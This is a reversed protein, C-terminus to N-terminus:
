KSKIEDLKAIVEGRSPLKSTKHYIELILERAAIADNLDKFMVNVSCSNRSLAVTYGDIRKHYSINKLGTSSHKSKKSTNHRMNYSRAIQADPFIINQEDKSPFRKNSNYFEVAKDRFKIAHDLRTFSRTLIKCNKQISVCYYVGGNTNTQVSIYKEKLLGERSPHSKTSISVSTKKSCNGCIHCRDIFEQVHSFARDGALYRLERKCVECVYNDSRDVRRCTMFKADVEDRTPLRGHEDFFDYVKERCDIADKLSEFRGSFRKGDRRIDLSYRKSRECYTIHRYGSKSNTQAIKSSSAKM